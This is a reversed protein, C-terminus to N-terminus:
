KYAEGLIHPAVYFMPSMITQRELNLKAFNGAQLTEWTRRNSHCGDFIVKHPTHVAAQAVRMPGWREAAVHEIFVYRSAPRLIRRIESVVQAPDGVSCLLLTGVVAAASNDDLDMAEGRLSRIELQVGAEKARRELRAHMAPNPEIAIVQQGKPYYRFNAGVGPGVEVIRTPLKAFLRAKHAGYMQHMKAETANLFWAHFRAQLGRFGAPAATNCM